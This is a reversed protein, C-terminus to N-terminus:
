VPFVFLIEQLLRMLKLEKLVKLSIFALSKVNEQTGDTRCLVVKDNVTIRGRQVRGVGIRGIYDDYDLSSFLCQLPDDVDGEPPQIESIIEEFLPRMDGSRDDPNHSAYGDKASAYIVPFELQDDNAGLEIFM